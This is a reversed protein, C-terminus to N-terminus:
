HRFCPSLSELHDGTRGTVQQGSHEDTLIRGPSTRGSPLMPLISTIKIRGRELSRPHEPPMFPSAAMSPPGSHSNCPSARAPCHSSATASCLLSTLMSKSTPSGIYTSLKKNLVIPKNYFVYYFIYINSFYLIKPKLMFLAILANKDLTNCTYTKHTVPSPDRPFPNLIDASGCSINASSIQRM